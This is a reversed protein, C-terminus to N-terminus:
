LQPRSLVNLSTVGPKPFYQDVNKVMWRVNQWGFLQGICFWCCIQCITQRLGPYIASLTAMIRTEVLTGDPNDLLLMVDGKLSEREWKSILFDSPFTRKNLRTNNLGELSLLAAGSGWHQVSMLHSLEKGSQRKPVFPPLSEMTTNTEAGCGDVRGDDTVTHKKQRKWFKQGEWISKRQSSIVSM